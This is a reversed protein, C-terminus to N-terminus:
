PSWHGTKNFNEYNKVTHLNGEDTEKELILEDGPLCRDIFAPLLKSNGSVWGEGFDKAILLYIEQQPNVLYLRNNAM